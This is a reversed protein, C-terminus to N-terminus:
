VQLFAQGGSQLPGMGFAQALADCLLVRHGQDVFKLVRRGGLVADKVRNVLGRAVVRRTSQQQNAIGLLRNIAKTPGVNVAVQLRAGGGFAAVIGQRDIVAGRLRQDLGDVMAEQMRFRM